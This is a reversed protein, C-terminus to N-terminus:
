LCRYACNTRLTDQKIHERISICTFSKGSRTTQPGLRDDYDVCFYTGDDQPALNRCPDDLLGCCEGCMKCVAEFETEKKGAYEGYTEADM